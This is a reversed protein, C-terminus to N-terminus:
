MWIENQAEDMRKADASDVVFVAYMSSILRNISVRLHIFSGIFASSGYSVRWVPRVHQSLMYCLWVHVLPLMRTLEARCM